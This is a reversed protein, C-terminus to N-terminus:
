NLHATCTQMVWRDLQPATMASLDTDGGSLSLLEGDDDLMFIANLPASVYATHPPRLSLLLRIMEYTKELLAQSDM